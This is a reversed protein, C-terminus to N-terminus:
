DVRQRVRVVAGNSIEAATPAAGTRHGADFAAEAFFMESDPDIEPAVRLVTASLFQTPATDTDLWVELGSGPVLWNAENAPVAFRIFPAGVGIIQLLTRGPQVYSGAIADCFAVRGAYPSEIRLATRRERLLELEAERVRTTADAQELEAQKLQRKLELAELEEQSFVNDTHSRRDLQRQLDALEITAQSAVSRAGLVAAQAQTIQRDLGPVELEVL